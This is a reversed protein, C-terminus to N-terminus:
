AAGAHERVFRSFEPLGTADGARPAAITCSIGHATGRSAIFLTRAACRAALRLLADSVHLSGAALPVAATKGPVEFEHDIMAFVVKGQALSERVAVLFYPSLPIRPVGSRAPERADVAVVERGEDRLHRVVRQTLRTHPGALLVGRGAAIAEDLEALGSVTLPVECPLGTRDLLRLCHWLFLDPVPEAACRWVGPPLAREPVVRTIAYAARFRHRRPIVRVVAQFAREAVPRGLTFLL